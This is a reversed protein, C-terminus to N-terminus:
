LNGQSRHNRQRQRGEGAQVALHATRYAARLGQGPDGYLCGVGRRRLTQGYIRDCRRGRIGEADLDPYEDGQM